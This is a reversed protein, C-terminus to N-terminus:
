WPGPSYLMAANLISDLVAVAVEPNNGMDIRALGRRGLPNQEIGALGVLDALHM